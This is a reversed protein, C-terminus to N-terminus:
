NEKQCMKNEKKDRLRMKQRELQAYIVRGLERQGEERETEEAAREM